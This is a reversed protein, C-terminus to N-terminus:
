RLCEERFKGNFSECYAHQTQMGPEIYRIKVTSAHPWMLMAKSIFETGNDCALVQPLKGAERLQGQIRTVHQGSISTDVDPTLCERTYDDVLTIIRKRCGDALVDYVFATAGRQGIATPLTAPVVRRTGRYRRKPRLPLQLGKLVYLREIRRHNLAGLERRIMMTMRPAGFSPREAVLSRLRTRVSENTPDPKPRYYWSTESLGLLQCM